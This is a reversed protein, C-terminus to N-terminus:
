EIQPEDEPDCVMVRSVVKGDPGYIEVRKPQKPNRGPEQARGKAWRVFAEQTRRVLTKAGENALDKVIGAALAGAAGEIYPLHVQIVEYWNVGYTGPKQPDPDERALETEFGLERFEALLPELTADSFREHRKPKIVVRSV